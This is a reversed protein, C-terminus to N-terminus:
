WYWGSCVVEAMMQWWGWALYKMARAQGQATVMLVLWAQAIGSGALALQGFPLQGPVALLEEGAYSGSLTQVSGFM